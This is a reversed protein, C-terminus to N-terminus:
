AADGALMIRLDDIAQGLQDPPYKLVRWGLLAATNFKVLDRLYGSGRTHRGQSWIGGDIEVAVRHLPFAFDFRWKRKPHFAYEPVPEPLGAARCLGVLPYVPAAPVAPRLSGPPSKAPPGSRQDTDVVAADNGIVRPLSEDQRMRSRQSQVRANHADPDFSDPLWRRM